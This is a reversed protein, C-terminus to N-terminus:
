LKKLKEIIKEIKSILEFYKEKYEDHYYANEILESLSVEPHDEIFKIWVKSYRSIKKLIKKCDESIGFGAEKTKESIYKKNFYECVGQCIEKACEKRYSESKMLEAEKKVTMFGCEVLCAPCRTNRLVYFNATKVGRNRLKTGRVLYKHILRTLKEGKGGWIYCYSEIGGYDNWKEKYANFHISIFIDANQDNCIEVRKSLPTDNRSPSCDIIEFNNRKLEEILYEKTWHNFENERYGDPTRKGLTGLGHGDDVAVKLIKV